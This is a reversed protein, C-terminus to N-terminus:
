VEASVLYLLRGGHLIQSLLDLRLKEGVNQGEPKRARDVVLLAAKAALDGVVQFDIRAGVFAEIRLARM